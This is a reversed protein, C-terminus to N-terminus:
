VIISDKVLKKGVSIYRKTIAKFYRLDKKTTKKRYGQKYLIHMSMHCVKCLCIGNSVTFRLEPFYRASNIHHAQLKTESSCIVCKNGAGDLVSIRWNKYAASSRWYKSLKKVEKNSAM